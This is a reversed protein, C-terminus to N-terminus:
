AGAARLGWSSEQFLLLLFLHFLSFELKFSTSYKSHFHFLENDQSVFKNIRIVSLHSLSLDLAAYYKSYFFHLTNCDATNGVHKNLLIQKEARRSDGERTHVSTRSLSLTPVM